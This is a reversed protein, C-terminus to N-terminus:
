EQMYMRLKSGNLKYGDKKAVMLMWDVVDEREKSAIALMDWQKQSLEAEDIAKYEEIVAKFEGLLFLIEKQIHKISEKDTLVISSRYGEYPMVFHYLKEGRFLAHSGPSFPVRIGLETLVLDGGTFDGYTFLGALGNVVDTSDTHGETQVDILHAFYSFPWPGEASTEFHMSRPMLEYMAVYQDHLKPDFAKFIPALTRNATGYINRIATPIVTSLTDSAMIDKHQNNKISLSYIKRDIGALMQKGSETQLGIHEVGCAAHHPDSSTAKSKEPFKKLHVKNNTAHRLPDTAKFPLRWTLKRTELTMKEVLGAEWVTAAADTWVEGIFAHQQDRLLVLDVGKVTECCEAQVRDGLMQCYKDGTAKKYVAQIKVLQTQIEPSTAIMKAAQGQYRRLFAPDDRHEYFKLYAAAALKKPGPVSDLRYQKPNEVFIEAMLHQLSPLEVTPPNFLAQSQEKIHRAIANSAYHDKKMSTVDLEFFTRREIRIGHWVFREVEVRERGLINQQSTEVKGDDAVTAADQSM